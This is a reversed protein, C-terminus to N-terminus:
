GLYKLFFEIIDADGENSQTVLKSTIGISSAHEYLYIGHKPHHNVINKTIAEPHENLDINERLNEIYIPPDSVDLDALMDIGGENKQSLIELIGDLKPSDNIELISEWQSLNYTAQSNIHGIVKVKTSERKIENTSNLDQFDEHAGLYLASGGGASSGWLGINEKDIGYEESHYKIFQVANVIDEDLIENLTAENLLRYNISIVIINNELFKNKQEKYDTNIQNKDGVTFGGGHIYITAPLPFNANEPYYIDLKNKELPGYSIDEMDIKEITNNSIASPPTSSKNKEQVKYPSDKIENVKFNITQIILLFLILAIIIFALKKEHKM